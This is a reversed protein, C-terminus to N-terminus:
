DEWLKCRVVREDPGLLVSLWESDTAPIPFPPRNPGLQYALRDPEEWMPPGLLEVVEGRTRGVLADRALFRAAMDHRVGDVMRSEDLWLDRDFSRGPYWVQWILAVVGALGIASAAVRTCHKRSATM